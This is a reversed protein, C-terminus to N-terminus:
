MEEIKEIPVPKSSAVKVTFLGTQDVHFNSVICTYEGGKLTKKESAVFGHRYKGTDIVPDGTASDIKAGLKKVPVLIVNAAVTTTTSLLIQVTTTSALRVSFQPNKIFNSQGVPGGATYTTWASSIERQHELEKEAKGLHFNETCFCSITYNLSNTKKYQSLILSLHKDAADQVDYRILVHPNNTYCGTL